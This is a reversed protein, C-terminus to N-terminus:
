NTSRGARFWATPPCAPVPARARGVMTCASVAGRGPARREERTVRVRAPLKALERAGEGALDVCELWHGLLMVAVLTALEERAAHRSSSRSRPSSSSGVTIALAILTIDRYGARSDGSPARVVALRRSSCSLALLPPSYAPSGPAHLSRVRCCPGWVPDPDPRALLSSTASCEVGHGRAQTRATDRVDRARAGDRHALMARPLPATTDPTATTRNVTM